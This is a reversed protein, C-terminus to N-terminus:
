EAQDLKSNILISERILTLGHLIAKAHSIRQDIKRLMLVAAAENPNDTPIGPRDTAVFAIRGFGGAAGISGVYWRDGFKVVYAPDDGPKATQDTFERSDTAGMKAFVERPLSNDAIKWLTGDPQLAPSSIIAPIDDAPYSRGVVRRLERNRQRQKEKADIEVAPMDPLKGKGGCKPCDTAGRMMNM